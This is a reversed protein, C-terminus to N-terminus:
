ARLSSVWAKQAAKRRQNTLHERLKERAENLSIVAGLQIKECLILHFGAETEVPGAIAGEDMAFLAEDLEPYLKGPTVDGLLGGELASPCESHASAQKDFDDPHQELYAAIEDIRKEAALATNEPYDDNVTILIHRVTRQEPRHFHKPHAAYYAEIEANTVPEVEDGVLSLVADFALERWLARRLDTEVVGSEKLAQDFMVHDDFRERIRKVADDIAVDPVSVRRGMETTLVLNELDRAQDARKTVTSLEHADLEGPQRGFIEVAARLVQYAHLGRDDLPPLTSPVARSM